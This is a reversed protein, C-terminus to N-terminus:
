RVREISPTQYLLTGEADFVNIVDSANQILYGYRDEIEQLAQAARRREEALQHRRDRHHSESLVSIFVGTFLLLVLAVSDGTGKLALVYRPEVLLSNAAVTSLLTIVLGPWL